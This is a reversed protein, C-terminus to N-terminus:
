RAPPRGDARADGALQVVHDGMVQDECAKWAPATARRGSERGSSADRITM